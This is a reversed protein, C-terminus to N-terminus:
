EGLPILGLDIVGCFLFGGLDKPDSGAPGLDTLLIFREFLIVTVYPVRSLDSLLRAVHIGQPDVPASGPAIPTPRVSAVLVVDARRVVPVRGLRQRARPAGVGAGPLYGPASAGEAPAP